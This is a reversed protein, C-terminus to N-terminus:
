NFSLIENPNYDQRDNYYILKIIQNIIIMHSLSLDLSLLSIFRLSFFPISKM